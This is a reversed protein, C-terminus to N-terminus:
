LIYHPQYSLQHRHVVEHYTCKTITTTPQYPAELPQGLLEVAMRITWRFWIRHDVRNLIQFNLFIKKTSWGPSLIYEYIMCGEGLWLSEFEPSDILKSFYQDNRNCLQTRKGRGRGWCFLGFNTFYCITRYFIFPQYCQCKKITRRM